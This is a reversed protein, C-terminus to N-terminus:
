CLTNRCRELARLAETVGGDIAREYCNIAERLQRQNEYLRGLAYAAAPLPHEGYAVKRYLNMARSIDEGEIMNAYNYIAAPYGTDGAEKYLALARDPDAETGVGNRYMWGLANMAPPYKQAAAREYYSFAEPMMREEEKLNGLKYLAPAYERGAAAQYYSVARSMLKQRVENVSDKRSAELGYDGVLTLDQAAREYVDGLNYGAAVVGAEWAQGYLERARRLNQPLVDLSGSEYLIGLENMADAEGREMRRRLNEVREEEEVRRDSVRSLLLSNAIREIVADFFEMNATIGNKNRLPEMDPPLVKPFTFNRMMVPIINKQHKLAHVVEQRVWDDENVCRDLGGPPLVLLMDECEEIVELLKTNFDGSRLSEIDYFVRYGMRTFREHLRGALVDGGERRYSIFIQYGAPRKLSGAKEKLPRTLSSKREPEGSAADATEQPGSVPQKEQQWPKPNEAGGGDAAGHRLVTGEEWLREHRLREAEVSLFAEANGPLPISSLCGKEFNCVWILDVCNLFVWDFQIKEGQQRDKMYQFLRKEDVDQRDSPHLFLYLANRKCRRYNTNLKELKRDFRYKAKYFEDQWKGDEPLIAWFRGNYFHLRDGYRDFASEPLEEEPCGLYKEIFSEAQGDEPLLAQSVELGLDMGENIWDPSESKVFFPRYEPWLYELSIAAYIENLLKEYAMM